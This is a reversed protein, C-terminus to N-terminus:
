RPTIDFRNVVFLTVTWDPFQGETYNRHFRSIIEVFIVANAGSHEMWRTAIFAMDVDCYRQAVIQEFHVKVPLALQIDEPELAILRRQEDSWKTEVDHQLTTLASKSLLGKLNIFMNQSVFKTITSIAQKTGRRFESENFQPDWTRKLLGFDLKNTLWTLPNQLYLIKPIQKEKKEYYSPTQHFSQCLNITVNWKSTSLLNVGQKPLLSHHLTHNKIQYNDPYKTHLLKQSFWLAYRSNITPRCHLLVKYNSYLVAKIQSYMYKYEISRLPFVM